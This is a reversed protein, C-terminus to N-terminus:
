KKHRGCPSLLLSPLFLPFLFKHKIAHQITKQVCIIHALPKQNVSLNGISGTVLSDQPTSSSLGHSFQPGPLTRRPPKKFDSSKKIPKPNSAPLATLLLPSQVKSIRPATVHISFESLTLLSKGKSVPQYIIGKQLSALYSPISTGSSYSATYATDLRFINVM